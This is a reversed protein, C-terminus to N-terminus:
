LLFTYKIKSLNTWFKAHKLTISAYSEDIQVCDCHDSLLTVTFDFCIKEDQPLNMNFSENFRTDIIVYTMDQQGSNCVVLESAMKVM